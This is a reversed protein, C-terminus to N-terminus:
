FLQLTGSVERPLRAKTQDPHFIYEMLLSALYRVSKPHDYEQPWYFDAPAVLKKAWFGKRACLSKLFASRLDLTSVSIGDVVLEYEGWGFRSEM